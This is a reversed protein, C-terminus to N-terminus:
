FRHITQLELQEEGTDAAAGRATGRTSPAPRGAPTARSRRCAAAWRLSGCRWPDPCCRCRGPCCPCPPCSRCCPCRPCRRPCRPCPAWGPCRRCRSPGPPPPPAPCATWAPPCATVGTQSSVNVNVHTLQPFSCYYNLTVYVACSTFKTLM